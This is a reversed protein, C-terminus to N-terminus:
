PAVCPSAAARCQVALERVASQIITFCTRFYAESLTHPDQIHIRHPTAWHGLLAIATEPIGNSRLRHVHRVEMALLLDGNRFEYDPLNTAKHETLDLGFHRSTAVTMEFAPAGTSTSLGISVTNLGVARAVAEAFASRNINGLCVFVLRRTAALDPQLYPNLRGALYEAEGLVLRVFGRHTGYNADILRMLRGRRDSKAASTANAGATKGAEAEENDVASM